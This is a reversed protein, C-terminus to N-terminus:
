YRWLAQLGIFHVTAAHGTDKIFAGPRFM